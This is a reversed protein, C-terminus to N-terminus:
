AEDGQDVEDGGELKHFDPIPITRDVITITMPEPGGASVLLTYLKAVLELNARAERIAALAVRKEGRQEATHLIALTREHLRQVQALLNDADAIEEAERAKVLAAPMHNDRHRALSQRTVRFRGAISRLPESGLLAREIEQRREHACVTCTPPM